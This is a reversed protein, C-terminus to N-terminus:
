AGDATIANTVLEQYDTPVVINVVEREAEVAIGLLGLLERAGTGRRTCSAATPFAWWGM